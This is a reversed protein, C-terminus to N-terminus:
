RGQKHWNKFGLREANKITRALQSPAIDYDMALVEWCVDPNSEMKEMIEAVQEISLKPLPGRKGM